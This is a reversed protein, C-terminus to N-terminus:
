RSTAASAAATPTTKRLRDLGILRIETLAGGTQRAQQDLRWPAPVGAFLRDLPEIEMVTTDIM